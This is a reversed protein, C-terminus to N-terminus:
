ALKLKVTSSSPRTVMPEDTNMPGLTDRSVSSNFPLTLLSKQMKDVKKGMM